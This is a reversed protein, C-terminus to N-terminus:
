AKYHELFEDDDNFVNPNSNLKCNCLHIVIEELNQFTCKLQILENTRINFLNGTLCDTKEKGKEKGLLFMYLLLQIKHIHQLEKVCKFEWIIDTEEDYCDIRGSLSYNADKFCNEFWESVPREFHINESLKLGIIRNVCDTKEKESIWEYTKLQCIKFYYKNQFTWYCTAMFTYEEITFSIENQNENKLKLLVKDMIASANQICEGNTKKCKLLIKLIESQIDKDFITTIADKKGCCIHQYITPIVIGNIDSVQEGVVDCPIRIEIEKEQLTTYLFLKPLIDKNFDFTLNRLLESVSYDKILFIYEYPKLKMKYEHKYSKREEQNIEKTLLVFRDFENKFDQFSQKKKLYEKKHLLPTNKKFKDFSRGFFNFLTLDKNEQFRKLILVLKYKEKDTEKDSVEENLFTEIDQQFKILQPKFNKVDFDKDYKLNYKFRQFCGNFRRLLLQYMNQVFTIDCVEVLIEPEVFQLMDKDFHHLLVLHDKARTVAVYIDNPCKSPNQDRAYYEFYSSDFNFVFVQKTELGKTRHYSSIEMKKGTPQLRIKEDDVSVNVLFNTVTSKVYNEFNCIPSKFNCITSTKHNEKKPKENERISKALVFTDCAKLHFNDNNKRLIDAIKWPEYQDMICYVPKRHLCKKSTIFNTNNYLSCTFNAVETSIRFSQTLKVEKWEYENLSRLLRSGLSLFRDDSGNYQYICQKVDGVITILPPCNFDRIIKCFLRFYTSTQDQFEDGIIRDFTFSKQPKLDKELVEKIGEDTQCNVGYFQGCCSHLTLPQVNSLKMKKAKELTETQLDKNYTLLLNSQTPYNKCIQLLVTTKGSGAVSNIIMNNREALQIATEQESSFHM